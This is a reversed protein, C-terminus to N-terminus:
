PSRLLTIRSESPATDVDDQMDQILHSYQKGLRSSGTCYHRNFSMANVNNNLLLVSSLTCLSPSPTLRSNQTINGIIIGICVM